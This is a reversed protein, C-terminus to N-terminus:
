RSGGDTLIGDPGCASMRAAHLPANGYAGSFTAAGVRITLPSHSLTEFSRSASQSKDLTAAGTRLSTFIALPVCRICRSCLRSASNATTHSNRAFLVYNSREHFMARYRRIRSGDHHQVPPFLHRDCTEDTILDIGILAVIELTAGFMQRRD